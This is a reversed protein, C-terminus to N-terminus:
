RSNNCIIQARGAIEAATSVRNRQLWAEVEQRNFFVMKGCPKYHPIARTSTLKYVYSKSFGTARCLENTTWVEKTNLNAGEPASSEQKMIQM